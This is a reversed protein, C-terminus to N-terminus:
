GTALGEAIGEEKAGKLASRENFLAEERKRAEERIREDGSLERIITVAKQVTPSNTAQNLM